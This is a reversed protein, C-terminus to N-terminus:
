PWIGAPVGTFYKWFEPYIKFVSGKHSIDSTWQGRTGAFRFRLDFKFLNKNGQKSSVTIIKVYDGGTENQLHDINGDEVDINYKHNKIEAASPLFSLKKGASGAYLYSNTPDSRLIYIILDEIQNQHLKKWDADFYDNITGNIRIRKSKLYNAKGADTTLPNTGFLHKMAVHTKKLSTKRWSEWTQSKVWKNLISNNTAGGVSTGKMRIGCIDDLIKIEAPTISSTKPPWNLSRNKRYARLCVSLYSRCGQDLIKKYGKGYLFKLLGMGEKVGQGPFVINMLKGPSLNTFQAHKGAKLSVDLDVATGGKVSEHIQVDAIIKKGGAGGGFVREASKLTYGSLPAIYMKIILESIAKGEDWLTSAKGSYWHGQKNKTQNWLEDYHAKQHNLKSAGKVWPVIDNGKQVSKKFVNAPPATSGALAMATFIEHVTETFGTPAETLLRNNFKKCLTRLQKANEEFIAEKAIPALRIM